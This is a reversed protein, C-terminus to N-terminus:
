EADEEEENDMVHNVSQQVPVPVVDEEEEDSDGHPAGPFTTLCLLPRLLICTRCVSLHM